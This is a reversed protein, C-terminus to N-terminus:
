PKFKRVFLIVLLVLIVFGAAWLWLIQKYNSNKDEKDTDVLDGQIDGASSEVIAEYSENKESFRETQGRLLPSNRLVEILNIAFDKMDVAGQGFFIERHEPFPLTKEDNQAILFIQFDQNMGRVTGTISIGEVPRPFWFRVRRTRDPHPPSNSAVNFADLTAFADDSFSTKIFGFNVFHILHEASGNRYFDRLEDYKENNILGKPALYVIMPFFEDLDAARVFVVKTFPIGRASSERETVDDVVLDVKPIRLIEAIRKTDLYIEANLTGTLTVLILLLTKIMPKRHLYSEMFDM